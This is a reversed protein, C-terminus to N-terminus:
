VGAVHLMQKGFLSDKLAVKTFAGSNNSENEVGYGCYETEQVDEKTMKKLDSTYVYEGNGMVRHVKRIFTQKFFNATNLPLVISSGNGGQM